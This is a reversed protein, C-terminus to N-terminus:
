PCRRLPCINMEMEVRELSGLPVECCLAIRSSSQQYEQTPVNTRHLIHVHVTSVSGSAIWSVWACRRGGGGWKDVGRLFVM